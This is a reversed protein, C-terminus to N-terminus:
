YFYGRRLMIPDKAPFIHAALNRSRKTGLTLRVREEEPYNLYYYGATYQLLKLLEKAGTNSLSTLLVMHLENSLPTREYLIMSTIEGGHRIVYSMDGAYADRSEAIDDYYTSGEVDKVTVVADRFAEESIDMISVMGDLKEPNAALSLAEEKNVSTPQRRCDDKTIIMETDDILEFSFGWSTFFDEALDYESDYPLDIIIGEAPNDEFVDSLAGMLDNAIGQMRYEEAVYIWQLRIVTTLEEPEEDDVSGIGEEISFIVVGAPIDEEAGKESRLGKEGEGSGLGEESAQGQTLAGMCLWEGSKVAEQMDSPILPLFQRVTEDKVWIVM